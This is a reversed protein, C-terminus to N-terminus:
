MNGNISKPRNSIFILSLGLLGFWFYMVVLFPKVKNSINCYGILFKSNIEKFGDLTHGDWIHDGMMIFHKRNNIFTSELQNVIEYKNWTTIIENKNYGNSINNNDYTLFNGTVCFLDKSKLEKIEEILEM